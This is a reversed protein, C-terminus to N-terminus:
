SDDRELRKGLSVVDDLEYGIRRYFDIANKNSGRIQLNVKPCGLSAFLKEVEAMIARGLGGNQNEPAVALYNVWGRHGDYGAMLTAVIVSDLVGVLFMEPQQNRKRRIDKRPDNWPRVLGCREWLDVVPGEDSKRFVRIEMITKM